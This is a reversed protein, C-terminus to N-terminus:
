LKPIMHSLVKNTSVTFARPKFSMVIFDILEDIAAIHCMIHNHCPKSM